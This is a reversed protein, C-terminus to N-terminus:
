YFDYKPANYHGIYLCPKEKSTIHPRIDLKILHDANWGLYEGLETQEVDIENYFDNLSITYEIGHILKRNLENEARRIKEIDHTFTRSSLPDFCLTDGNNTVIVNDDDIDHKEIRDKAINDRVVQEKREGITEIVKERYESLANESLQYAAALAATRRASVSNAGILCAISTAGTIAAPIYPKWAVKVTEMPTLRNVDQAHREDEILALAKPTAKVALATTMLMGAIGVGTLIEPTHKTVFTQSQQVFNVLNLKKM